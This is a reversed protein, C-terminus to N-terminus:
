DHGQRQTNTDLEGAHDQLEIQKKEKQEEEQENSKKGLQLEQSEAPTAQESAKTEDNAIHLYIYDTNQENLPEYGHNINQVQPETVPRPDPLQPSYTNEQDHEETEDSLVELYVHKENLQDYFNDEIDDYVSGADQELEECHYIPNTTTM